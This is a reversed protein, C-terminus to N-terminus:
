NILRQSFYKELAERKQEIFKGTYIQPSKNVELCYWLKTQKDQLIDVGAIQFQLLKAAAVAQNIMSAPVSAPDVLESESGQSTNNLHSSGTKRSRKIVLPVQGGLVILRYDFDNQIFQQALMWAKMDTTQNITAEFEHKSNILYNNHGKSASNDKVIFPLGLEKVIYDYSKALRIPLMFITKPVAINNDTLTIYQYLKAPDHCQIVGRDIFDIFRNELYKAISAAVYSHGYVSSTSFYVLSYDAVNELNTEILISNEDGGTKFILDSYPVCKIENNKDKIYDVLHSINQNEKAVLFLIRQYGAYTNKKSVDVLFKGKLTRRGILIPFRNNARNSLTIQAKILKGAMKLKISVKYRIETHGFSNKIRVISYKKTKIEEGTFYPSTAGFLNFSLEGDKQIINSAWIASSDAGTDIKALINDIGYEPLNVVEVTGINALDQQM